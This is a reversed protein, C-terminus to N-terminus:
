TAVSCVAVGTYVIGYAGTLGYGYALPLVSHNRMYEMTKKVLFPQAIYFGISAARPIWAMVVEPLFTILM